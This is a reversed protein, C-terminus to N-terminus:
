TILAAGRRARSKRTVGPGAGPSQKESLLWEIAAIFQVALVVLTYTGDYSLPRAPPTVTTL